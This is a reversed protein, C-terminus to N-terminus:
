LIAAWYMEIRLTSEASDEIKFAVVGSKADARHRLFVANNGDVVILQEIFQRGAGADADEGIVGAEGGSLVITVVNHVPGADHVFPLDMPAPSVDVAM